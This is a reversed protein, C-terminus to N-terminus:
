VRPHSSRPEELIDVLASRRSTSRSAAKALVQAGDAALDSRGVRTAARQCDTRRGVAPEGEGMRRILRRLEEPIPPRGSRSKLRWFLRWGARHWGIMTAPRVVVLANRWDFLRALAALSVRTAADVRRPRVGRELFLALQRRLLLNEARVSETSRAMLMLWRLADELLRVVIQALVVM